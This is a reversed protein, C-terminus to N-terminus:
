KCAFIPYHLPISFHQSFDSLGRTRFDSLIVGIPIENKGDGTKRDKPSGSKGLERSRIKM